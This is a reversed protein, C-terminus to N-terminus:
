LTEATRKAGGTSASPPVTTANATTTTTSLTSVRKLAMKTELTWDIRFKFFLMGVISSSYIGIVMGWWLGNVGLDVRPAAFTLVSGVPVALVWFGLVNLFLVFQQRGLGRLVGGMTAQVADGMMFVCSIPILVAVLEAVEDDRSFMHGLWEKSPYLLLVLVAQLTMSLWFSIMGSRQADGPKADGILQGVRISAATGVAFPFSLFLFHAMTLAINHADLETTGLLGALITTIEFSWAEAAISLAGSLSLKWFPLLLSPRTWFHSPDLIPWTSQVVSTSREQQIKKWYLYSMLVLCEMWRTLTTAWPAGTLGMNWQYMLLWNLFINCVNALLGMLVGPLLIDQTQLYKVLVKFIYYPFLGPVLRYSFDGARDSLEHDQGFLKMAPGCVAIAAALFCTVGTTVILSTGTWTRFAQLNNTDDNHRNGYSQALFTDIAGMFGIMTANWLTFWTTALAAAALDTKSNPLNGIFAIDIVPLTNQFIESAIIMSTTQSVQKLHDQYSSLVTLNLPLVGNVNEGNDDDDLVGAGSTTGNGIVTGPPRPPLPPPLNSDGENETEGQGQQQQQEEEEHVGKGHPSPVNKGKTHITDEYYEEAVSKRPIDKSNVNEMTPKAQRKEREFSHQTTATNKATTWYFTSLYLPHL